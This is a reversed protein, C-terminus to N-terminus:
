GAGKHEIITSQRKRWRNTYYRLAGEAEAFRGLVCATAWLLAEGTPSGKRRRRVALRIIQLPYSALLLLSAGRSPFALALSGIPLVVGWLWTRCIEWRFYREASRRYINEIEAFAHGCRVSRRWWQRFRMIASDHRAMSTSLLVVSGGHSRLRLALDNDEAAIITENWGGADLLRGIRMMVIGGFAMTTGPAHAAWEMECLRNYISREPHMEHLRGVVAVVEERESLLSVGTELWDPLLTCDGDLFQVLELNPELERLRRVGANRGRSATFPVSRDLEVVDVGATRAVAVSSDSSGSDVYVTAAVQPPVSALAAALRPAENRGIVVVGVRSLLPSSAVVTM